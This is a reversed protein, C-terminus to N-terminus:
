WQWLRLQETGIEKTAHRKRRSPRSAALGLSEMGLPRPDLAHRDSDRLGPSEDGDRRVKAQHATPLNNAWDQGVV